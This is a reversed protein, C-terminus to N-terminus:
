SRRKPRPAACHNPTVPQKFETAAGEEAREVSSLGALLQDIVSSNNNILPKHCTADPAQTTHAVEAM